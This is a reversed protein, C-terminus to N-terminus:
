RLGAGHGRCLHALPVGGPCGPGSINQSALVGQDLHHTARLLHGGGQSPLPSASCLSPFLRSRPFHTPGDCRFPLHWKHRKRSYRWGWAWSVSDCSHSGSPSTSPEPSLTCPVHHSQPSTPHGSLRILPSGGQFLEYDEEPQVVIFSTVMMHFYKKQIVSAARTLKYGNVWRLYTRQQGWKVSSSVPLLSTWPWLAGLHCLQCTIVPLKTDYDRNKVMRSPWAQIQWYVTAVTENKLFINSSMTILESFHTKLIGERKIDWNNNEACKFNAFEIM